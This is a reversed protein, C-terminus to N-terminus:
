FQSHPTPPTVECNRRRSAPSPCPGAQIWPTPIDYWSDKALYYPDFVVCDCEEKEHKCVHCALVFTGQLSGHRACWIGDCDVCADIIARSRKECLRRCHRQQPQRCMACVRFEKYNKYCRNRPRDEVAVVDNAARVRLRAGRRHNRCQRPDYHNPIYKSTCIHSWWGSSREMKLKKYSFFEGGQQAAMHARRQPDPSDFYAAVPPEALYIGNRFSWSADQPELTPVEVDECNSVERAAAEIIGSSATMASWAGFSCEKKVCSRLFSEVSADKCGAIRRCVVHSDIMSGSQHIPLWACTPYLTHSEANRDIAADFAHDRRGRCKCGGPRPQPHAEETEGCIVGDGTSAGCVYVPSVETGINSRMVDGIYAQQYLQGNMKRLQHFSCQRMLFLVTFQLNNLKSLDHAQCRRPLTTCHVHTYMEGGPVYTV